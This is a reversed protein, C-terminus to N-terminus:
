IAGLTMSMGVHRTEHFSICLMHHANAFLQKPQTRRRVQSITSIQPSEILEIAVIEFHAFLAKPITRMHELLAILCKPTM